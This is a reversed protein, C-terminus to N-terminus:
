GRLAAGGVGLREARGRDQSERKSENRITIGDAVTGKGSVDVAAGVTENKTSTTFTEDGDLVGDGDTDPDTPDTGVQYEDPDTLGDGDTDVSLPNTGNALEESDNLTDFDSDPRVPNTSANQERLNSLTDDDLDEAADSVNDDDTDVALPDVGKFQVEFGDLLDDDTDLHVGPDGGGYLAGLFEKLDDPSKTAEVM